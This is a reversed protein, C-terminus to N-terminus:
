RYVIIIYHCAYVPHINNGPFNEYLPILLSNPMLKLYTTYCSTTTVIICSCFIDKSPVISTDKRVM